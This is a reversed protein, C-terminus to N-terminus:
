QDGGRPGSHVETVAGPPLPARYFWRGVSTQVGATPPASALALPPRSVGADPVTSSPRQPGQRATTSAPANARPRLCALALVHREPRPAADGAPAPRRP